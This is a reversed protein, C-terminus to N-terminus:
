PYAWRSRDDTCHATITVGRWFTNWNTATGQFRKSDRFVGKTVGIGGDETVSIGLGVERAPAYDVNDLYMNGQWPCAVGVTISDLPAIDYHADVTTDNAYAPPATASLLAAVAAVMTSGVGVLRTYQMLM